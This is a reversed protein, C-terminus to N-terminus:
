QVFAFILRNNERILYLVQGIKLDEFDLVQNGKLIVAGSKDVELTSLRRNWKESFQSFDLMDKIKVYGGSSFGDFVGLSIVDDNRGGETIVMARVRGDELLAYFNYGYFYKEYRDWLFEDKSLTEPTSGTADIIVADDYIKLSERNRKESSWLSEELESRYRATFADREIEYIQGKIVKLNPELFKPQYILAAKPGSSSENVVVFTGGDERLYEWGVPTNGSVAITGEDMLMELDGLAMEGTSWRVEDIFGNELYEDGSKLVVKVARYAGGDDALALYADKGRYEESIKGVEVRRGDYYAEAGTLRVRLTSEADKFVGYYFEKVDALLLYEGGLRGSIKGKVIRAISGGRAVEVRLSRDSDMYVAVKDGIELLAPSVKAGNKLVTDLDSLEINKEGDKSAVTVTYMGDDEEIERVTGELPFNVDEQGEWGGPTLSDSATSVEIRNAKGNVAWVVLGIGPMLDNLGAKRGDILIEPYQSLELLVTNGGEDRIYLQGKEIRALEGSVRKESYTSIEAYLIESGKAVVEVYDEPKLIGSGYRKKGKLVPFDTKGRRVKIEYIPGDDTKVSYTVESSGAKEVSVISGRFVTLGFAEEGKIRDALAALEARTMSNLPYLKGGWGGAIGKKALAAVYPLRQLDVDGLDEFYLVEGASLPKLKLARAAWTLVEQRQALARFDLSSESRDLLGMRLALELYPIAWTSAKFNSSTSRRQESSYSTNLGALRVMVALAEERRVARQPFFRAGDGNMLDMASVRAISSEAWHGSVDTFGAFETLILGRPTGSYELVAAEAPCHSFFVAAILFWVVANKAM